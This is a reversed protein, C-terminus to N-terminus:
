NAQFTPFQSIDGSFIEYSLRPRAAVNARAQKKDKALDDLRQMVHEALDESEGLAAEIVALLHAEIDEAM